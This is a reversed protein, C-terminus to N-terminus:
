RKVTGAVVLSWELHNSEKNVLIWLAELATTTIFHKRQVTCAHRPCREIHNLEKDAFIWITELDKIAM